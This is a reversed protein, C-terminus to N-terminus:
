GDAPLAVHWTINQASGPVSSVPDLEPEDHETCGATYYDYWDESLGGAVHALCAAHRSRRNGFHDSELQREHRRNRCVREGRDLDGLAGRGFCIQSGVNGGEQQRQTGARQVIDTDRDARKRSRTQGLV